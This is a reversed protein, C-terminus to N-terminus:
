LNFTPFLNFMPILQERLDFLPLSRLISELIDIGYSFPQRHAARKM